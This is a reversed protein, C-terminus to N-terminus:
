PGSSLAGGLGSVRFALSLPALAGNLEFIYTHKPTAPFPAYTIRQCADRGSILELRQELEEGAWGEWLSSTHRSVRLTVEKSRRQWPERSNDLGRYSVWAVDRHSRPTRSARERLRPTSLQEGESQESSNGVLAHFGRQSIM